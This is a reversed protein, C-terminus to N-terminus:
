THHFVKMWATSYDLFHKLSQSRNDKRHKPGHILWKGRTHQDMKPQETRFQNTQLNM